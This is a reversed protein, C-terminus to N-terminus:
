ASVVRDRGQVKAQYLAADATAILARADSGHGPFQSIGISISIAPLLAGNFTVQMQKTKLLFDNAKKRAAELTTNPLLILFEEGGYRYKYDYIRFENKILQAFSILMADGAQHGYGDNIKKFYDLDALLVVFPYADRTARQIEVSLTQELYLRNLLQTLPDYMAQNQLLDQLQKTAVLSHILDVSKIDHQTWASSHNEVKELFRQFSNRPCYFKGVNKIAQAPDGAWAITNILEPKYFLLYHNELYTIKIAFIGCAIKKYDIAPQYELPLSDTYYSSLSDKKDLWSILDIIAKEEPTKGYNLLVNQLYVSMGTSSVLQMLEKNHEALADSLSKSKRFVKNLQTHMTGIQQEDYFNQNSEIALAQTAFINACFALIYRSNASLYKPERHHCAILGWLTDGQMIAVSSASCIGMNSLYQVHVPAVMRLNSAKLNPNKTTKHNKRSIIKVPKELVSPIYRLPLRTYMERVSAPIDTAPFRLGFYPSMEKDFSEGIVIGTYDQNDFKYIIVRHYDTINKIEECYIMALELITKCQLTKRMTSMVFENFDSTSEQPLLEINREIELSITKLEKRIFILIPIVKGSTLWIAPKYQSFPTKFWLHINEETRESKLFYLIDHGLIDNLPTELLTPANESYQIVELNSDLEFWVGHPQIQNFDGMEISNCLAENSKKSKKTSM